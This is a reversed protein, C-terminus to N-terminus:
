NLDKSEKRKRRKNARGKLISFISITVNKPSIKNDRDILTSLSIYEHNKLTLNVPRDLNLLLSIESINAVQFKISKNGYYLGTIHNDDCEPIGFNSIWFSCNETWRDLEFSVPTTQEFYTKSLSLYGFTTRALVFLILILIPGIYKQNKKIEKFTKKPFFIINFIKKNLM